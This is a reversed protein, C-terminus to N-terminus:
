ISKNIKNKLSLYKQKMKLYKNEDFKDFVSDKKKQKNKETDLIEKISPIEKIIDINSELNILREKIKKKSERSKWWRYGKYSWDAVIFSILAWLQIKFGLLEEAVNSVGPM